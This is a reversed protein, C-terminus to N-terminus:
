IGCLRRWHKDIYSDGTDVAKGGRGESAKVAYYLADCLDDYGAAPYGVLQDILAEAGPGFVLIGNEVLPSISMLRVTKSARGPTMGRLPIKLGEGWAQRVIIDKYVAQFQVTEMVIRRHHYVRYSDIIQRTFADTSMTKGAVHLVYIKGGAKDVGITVMASQDHAGTAPDVGGYIKLGRPIDAARARVIWASKFIRDEDSLPESLYEIAYAISGVERQKAKLDEWSYREPWLPRGHDEGPLPPCEASFRLGIWNDKRGCRIDDLLRSPLDDENTITNVVVFLASDGLPIVTRSFWKYVKDRILSSGSEQDKFTDDVIVLDPRHQKHRLGRMSGGKGRALVATGNALQLHSKSWTRGSGEPTQPPFDALIRENTELAFKINDMQGEADDRSAGIIIVFWVKKFLLCWLPYAFTMRTSKGHQRPEVDVIGRIGKRPRFTGRFAKPVLSTLRRCQDPTLERTQIVDYLIRQYDAPPCFFYEKLYWECFFTFDTSARALRDARAALEAEDAAAAALQPLRRALEGVASPPM